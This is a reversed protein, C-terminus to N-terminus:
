KKTWKTDTNDKPEEVKIEVKDLDMPKRNEIMERLKGRLEPGWLDYNEPSIGYHDFFDGKHADEYEIVLDANRVTQDFDYDSGVVQVLDDAANVVALTVGNYDLVIDEEAPTNICVINIETSKINHDRILINAAEIAVNGGHSHGVLTIPEGDVKTKLVHEVLASAGDHRCHDFNCGNWNFVQNTTKNGFTEGISKLVEIDMQEGHVYKRYDMGGPTQTGHIFYAELGELEIADMVRNESFAYVSNHPYKAALPDVSFFRGLRPDEVRYKYSVAGSWLENDHEQNQFGYRYAESVVQLYNRDDMV